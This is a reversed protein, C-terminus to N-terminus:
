KEFYQVYLILKFQSSSSSHGSHRSPTIDLTIDNMSLRFYEWSIQLFNRAISKVDIYLIFPLFSSFREM